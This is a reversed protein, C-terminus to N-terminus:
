SSVNFADPYVNPVVLAVDAVVTLFIAPDNKLSLSLLKTEEGPVPFAITQVVATTLSDVPDVPVPM